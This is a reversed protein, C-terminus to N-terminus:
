AREQEFNSASIRLIKKIDGSLASLWRLRKRTWSMMKIRSRLRKEDGWILLREPKRLWALHALLM